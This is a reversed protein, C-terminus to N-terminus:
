LISLSRLTIEHFESWSQYNKTSIDNSLTLFGNLDICFKDVEQLEDETLGLLGTLVYSPAKEPPGLDAM